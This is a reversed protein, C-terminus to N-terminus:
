LMMRLPEELTAKLTVLFAAADAGYVIRHDSSLRLTLM